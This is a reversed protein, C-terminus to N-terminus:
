VCGPCDGGGGNDVLCQPCDCPVLTGNQVCWVVGANDVQCAVQPCGSIKNGVFIAGFFVGIWVVIWM